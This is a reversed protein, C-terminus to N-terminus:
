KTEVLGSWCWNYEEQCSAERKRGLKVKPHKCHKSLEAPQPLTFVNKGLMGKMDEGTAAM